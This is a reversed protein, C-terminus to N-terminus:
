AHALQQAAQMGGSAPNAARRPAYRTLQYPDSIISAVIVFGRAVGAASLKSSPGEHSRVFRNFRAGGSRRRAAYFLSVPLCWLAGVRVVRRWDFL